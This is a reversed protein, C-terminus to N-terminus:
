NSCTYTWQNFSGQTGGAVLGQVPFGSNSCTCDPTSTTYYTFTNMQSGDACTPPYTDGNNQCGNSNNVTCLLCNGLLWTGCTDGPGCPCYCFSLPERCTTDCALAGVGGPQAQLQLDAIIGCAMVTLSLVAIITFRGRLLCRGQLLQFSSPWYWVPEQPTLL